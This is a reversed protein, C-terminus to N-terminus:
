QPWWPTLRTFEKVAKAIDRDIQQQSEQLSHILNVVPFDEPIPFGPHVRALTERLKSSADFLRGLDKKIAEVPAQAAKVPFANVVRYGRSRYEEVESQYVM